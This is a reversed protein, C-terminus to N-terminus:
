HENKFSRKISILTRFMSLIGRDTLYEHLAKRAYLPNAAELEVCTQVNFCDRYCVQYLKM